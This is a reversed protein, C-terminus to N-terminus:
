LFGLFKIEVLQISKTNKMINELCKYLRKPIKPNRTPDPKLQEKNRDAAAGFNGGSM